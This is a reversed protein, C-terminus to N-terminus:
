GAQAGSRLRCACAIAGTLFDMIAPDFGSVDM